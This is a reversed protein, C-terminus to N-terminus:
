KRQAEVVCLVQHLNVSLTPKCWARPKIIELGGSTTVDLQSSTGNQKDESLWPFHYLPSCIEELEM